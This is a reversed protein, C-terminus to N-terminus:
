SGYAQACKTVCWESEAFGLWELGLRHKPCRHDCSASICRLSNCFSLLACKGLFMDASMDLCLPAIEIEFLEIVGNFLTNRVQCRGPHLEEASFTRAGFAGAFSLQCGCANQGKRIHENSPGPEGLSRWACFKQFSRGKASAGQLRLSHISSDPFHSLSFQCLPSEM